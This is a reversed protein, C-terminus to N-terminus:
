SAAPAAPATGQEPAESVEPAKAKEAAKKEAAKQKAAATVCRSYPTGKEGKVHQKSLGKCARAPNAPKAAHSAPADASAVAPVALALVAPLVALKPHVKM